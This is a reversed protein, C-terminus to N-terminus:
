GKVLMAEIKLRRRRTYHTYLYPTNLIMRTNEFKRRLRIYKEGLKESIAEKVLDQVQVFVKLRAFKKVELKIAKRAREKTSELETNLRRIEEESEQKLDDYAIKTRLLEDRLAAEEELYKQCTWMM